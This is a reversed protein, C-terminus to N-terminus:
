RPRRGIAEFAAVMAATTEIDYRGMEAYLDQARFAPPPPLRAGPFEDHPLKILALNREVIEANDARMKRLKAADRVAAFARTKGVQPIGAIDNHTGMLATALMYDAPTIPKGEPCTLSAGRACKKIGENYLALNPVWLLQFLDSDNSMAYIEDFRHRESLSLDAIIDDSEFGPEALPAHGLRELAALVYEESELMLERLEPDAAKKRIQKYEPYQRSRVYPKTDRCFAARTAGTERAAKGLAMMFGYLGGTFRGESTLHRNAAAARYTQYSLDVLLLVRKM